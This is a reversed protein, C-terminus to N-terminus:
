FGLKTVRDSKTRV